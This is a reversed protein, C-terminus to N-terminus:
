ERNYSYRRYWPHAFRGGQVTKLSRRCLGAPARGEEFARRPGRTLPYVFLHLEDVLAWGTEEAVERALAELLTEGSDLHGGVIDSCGACRRGEAEADAQLSVFDIM